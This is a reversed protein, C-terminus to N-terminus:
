ISIGGEELGRGSVDDEIAVIGIVRIEGFEGTVGSYKSITDVRGGVKM